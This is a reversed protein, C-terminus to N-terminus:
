EEATLGQKYLKTSHRSRRNRANMDSRRKQQLLELERAQLVTRTATAHVDRSVANYEQHSPSSLLEQMRHEWKQSAAQLVGINKPTPTTEPEPLGPDTM